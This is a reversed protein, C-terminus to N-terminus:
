SWGVLQYCAVRKHVRGSEDTASAQITDIKAGKAKLRSIVQSPSSVGKGRFEYTSTYQHPNQCFINMVEAQLPQFVNKTEQTSQTNKKLSSEGEYFLLFALVFLCFHPIIM